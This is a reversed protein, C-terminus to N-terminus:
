QLLLERIKEQMEEVTHKRSRACEQSQCNCILCKRYVKRSLKDGNIDIIDIDFLRGYLHEEELKLALEKLQSASAKVSAIWEDGTFEHLEALDNVPLANRNLIDTIENKGAEFGNRILPSTKIPGPINMCFSIVPDHYRAIFENQIQVRKERCKMMDTITVKQKNM